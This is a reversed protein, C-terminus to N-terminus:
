AVTEQRLKKWLIAQPRPPLDAVQAPPPAPKWFFVGNTPFTDPSYGIREACVASIDIRRGTWLAPGIDTQQELSVNGNPAHLEFWKGLTSHEYFSIGQCDDPVGLANSGPADGADHWHYIGDFQSYVSGRGSEFSSLDSPHSPAPPLLTGAWQAIFQEHTGAYSNMDLQSSPIVGPVGHPGPGAGDGTYQWLWPAGWINTPWSPHANYHSLWLPIQRWFRVNAAFEEENQKIVSGGYIAPWRGVRNFVGQCFARASSEPVSDDEYDLALRLGVTDGVCELFWAVQNSVNGPRIFHYAGYLLGAAKAPDRRWDFSADKYGYAESAKNICGWIGARVAGAFGDQVDDYHSLDIVRPFIQM